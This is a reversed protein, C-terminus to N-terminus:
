KTTPIPLAVPTGTTSVTILQANVTFVANATQMVEATATQATATKMQLTQILPQSQSQIAWLWIIYILLPLTIIGVWIATPIRRLLSPRTALSEMRERLNGIEKRLYFMRSDGENLSELIQKKDDLEDELFGLDLRRLQNKLKKLAAELDQIEDGLFTKLTEDPTQAEDNSKM